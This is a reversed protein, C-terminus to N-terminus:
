KEVNREVVFQEDNDNDEGHKDVMRMRMMKMMMMMHKDENGVDNSGTLIMMIIMSIYFILVDIMIM